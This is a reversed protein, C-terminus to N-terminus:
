SCLVNTRECSLHRGNRRPCVAFVLACIIIFTFSHILLDGISLICYGFDIFDSLFALEVSSDGALHIADGAAAFDPTFYGTWLSLTPFVPMKGGNADMVLRNLYTGAAAIGAGAIAPVFLKQALIPFLLVLFYLRKLWPAFPVFGYFGCFTSVQVAIYFLELVFYPILCKRRFVASAQRGFLHGVLLALFFFPLM